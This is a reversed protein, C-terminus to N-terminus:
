NSMVPAMFLPALILITLAICFLARVIEEQRRM